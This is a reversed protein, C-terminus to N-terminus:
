KKLFSIERDLTRVAQFARSTDPKTVLLDELAVAGYATKAGAEIKWVMVPRDPLDIKEARSQVRSFFRGVLNDIEARTVLQSGQIAGKELFTIQCEKDGCKALTSSGGPSAAPKVITIRVPVNDETGPAIRGISLVLLALAVTVQRISFQTKM